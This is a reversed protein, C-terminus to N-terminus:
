RHWSSELPEGDETPLEMAPVDFYFRVADLLELTEIATHSNCCGYREWRMRLDGACRRYRLGCARWTRRWRGVPKQSGTGSESGSTTPSVAEQEAKAESPALLTPVLQANAM